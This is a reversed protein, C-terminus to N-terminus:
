AAEETETDEASNLVVNLSTLLAKTKEYDKRIYYHETQSPLDRKAVETGDAYKAPSTFTITVEYPEAGRNAFNEYSTHATDYRLAEYFKDLIDKDVFSNLENGLNDHIEVYELTRGDDRLIPFYNQRVAKTEIIPKLLDADTIYDAAYTRILKKGNKLNYVIEFRFYDTMESIDGKDKIRREHLKKVNDIDVPETLALNERSYIIQKGNNFYSYAPMQNVYNNFTVSEITDSAPIRREYGTFDFAFLFNLVCVAACFIIAPKIGGSLKLTKRALMHAAFIGIVGFPILMLVSHTQWMENIYSYGMAGVCAAVGYMFIPKLKPFALVEGNNELNRIKYLWYATVAFLCTIVLYKVINMPNSCIDSPAVYLFKTVVTEMSESYGYIQQELFYHIFYEVCMPLFAFIYTFAIAAVNNGALMVVASAGSFVLMTYLMYLGAWIALHILRYDKAIEPDTRFLLLILANLLIPITLLIIGSLMHSAFFTGRKIPLSHMCSVAKASNLYSFLMVAMAVPIVCAFFFSAQSSQYIGSTIYTVSGMDYFDQKAMNVFVFTFSVFIMLASIASIWWLRKMDSRIVSKNFFSTKLNM